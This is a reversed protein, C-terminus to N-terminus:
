DLPLHLCFSWQICVCPMLWVPALSDAIEIHVCGLCRCIHSLHWYKKFQMTFSRNVSVCIKDNYVTKTLRLVLCREIFCDAADYPVTVVLLKQFTIIRLNQKGMKATMRESMCKGCSHTFGSHIHFDNLVCESM